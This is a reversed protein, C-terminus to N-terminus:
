RGFRHFVFPLLSVRLQLYLGISAFTGEIKYALFATRERERERELIPSRGSECSACSCLTDQEMIQQTVGGIINQVM